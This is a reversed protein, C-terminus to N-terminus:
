GDLATYSTKNLPTKKRIQIQPQLLNPSNTRGDFCALLQKSQIYDPDQKTTITKAYNEV